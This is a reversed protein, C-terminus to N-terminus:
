FIDIYNKKLYFFEIKINCDILTLKSSKHGKLKNFNPTYKTGKILLFAKM